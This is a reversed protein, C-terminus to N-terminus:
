TEHDALEIKKHSMINIPYRINGFGTVDLKHINHIVKHIFFLM